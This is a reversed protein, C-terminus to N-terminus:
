SFAQIKKKKAFPIRRIYGCGSLYLEKEADAGRSISNKLHM